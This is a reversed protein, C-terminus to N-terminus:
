RFLVANRGGASASERSPETFLGMQPGPMGSLDNAVIAELAVAFHAGTAPYRQTWLCTDIVALLIAISALQFTFWRESEESKTSAKRVLM